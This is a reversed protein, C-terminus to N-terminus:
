VISNDLDNLIEQFQEVSPIMVAQTHLTKLKELDTIQNLQQIITEPVTEFRVELLDLINERCGEVRGEQRAMREGSTIYPMQQEEEFAYIETSFNRQLGEPLTMM